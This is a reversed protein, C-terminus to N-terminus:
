RGNTLSARHRVVSPFAQGAHLQNRVVAIQQLLYMSEDAIPMRLRHAQRELQDLRTMLQTNNATGGGAAIDDKLFRLEGLLRLVKRRMLPGYLMPLFRVMLYLVAVTPILLFLLRGVLSAMWFPVYNHLFPLGSKYFQVAESSLPPEIGEAAPLRGASQFMGLGWQSQEAASLLLYQIAPHLDKRVVLSIKLALLTADASPLDKALDGVGRPVTVKSLFPYLAVYADATPANALEVREDAILQQVVPTEWSALMAVVDIERSLVKDAAEQSGFALLEVKHDIGNRKLLDLMLTHSDSGVPGISVKRGILSSPTLGELGGRHFVWLTEYFVTGLSELQGEDKDVSGGRLLAINVDSRPDRLLALNELSGATTVLKLRIGARALAVQYRKGIKQYDGGEPGTAMVVSRPPMTSLLLIAWCLIVVATMGITVWQWNAQRFERVIM